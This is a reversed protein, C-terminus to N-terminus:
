RFSTIFNKTTHSANYYISVPVAMFVLAWGIGLIPNTQSIKQFHM